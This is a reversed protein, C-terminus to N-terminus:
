GKIKYVPIDAKGKIKINHFTMNDFGYINDPMTMNGTLEIEFDYIQRQSMVVSLLSYMVTIFVLLLVTSMIINTIKVSDSENKNQRTFSYYWKKATEKPIM